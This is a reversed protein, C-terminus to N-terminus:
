PCNKRTDFPLKNALMELAARKSPVVGNFRPELLFATLLEGHDRACFRPPPLPSPFAFAEAGAQEVSLTAQTSSKEAQLVGIHSAPGQLRKQVFARRLTATERVEYKDPSFQHPVYLGYQENISKMKSGWTVQETGPIDAHPRVNSLASNISELTVPNIYATNERWVPESAARRTLLRVKRYHLVSRPLLRSPLDESAGGLPGHSGIGVHAGRLAAPLETEILSRLALASM